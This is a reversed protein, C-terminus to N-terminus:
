NKINKAIKEISININKTAAALIGASYAPSIDSLVWHINKVDFELSQNVLKRFFPNRLVSGHGAFILDKNKYNLKELNSIIYEGINRTAEQVISLALDNGKEAFEIVEKAISAINSVANENEFVTHLDDINNLKYTQMILEYIQNIDSDANILGLNLIVRDISQKGIWFGSGIDKEYGDGAVKYTEGKSNRGLCIIGTGVAVLLGTGIPCLLHFAVEADSLIISNSSIDLRDLEKLLLERQADDSVGALGFGFASIESLSIKSKESIENILNILRNIALEKYISLNTGSGSLESITKGNSNFLCVKTNTGGGDIGLIYDSQNM